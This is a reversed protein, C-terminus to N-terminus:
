SSPIVNNSSNRLVTKNKGGYRPTILGKPKCHYLFFKCTIYFGNEKRKVLWIRNSEYEFKFRNTATHNLRSIESNLHINRANLVEPPDLYCQNTIVSRDDWEKVKNMLELGLGM